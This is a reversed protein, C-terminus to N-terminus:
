AIKPIGNEIILYNKNVGLCDILIINSNLPKININDVPTHGVVCTVGHVMNQLLSKPRVWIPGQTIDDGFDSFNRGVRFCFAKPKYILTENILNIFDNDITFEDHGMVERCWNKTLGAHSFLYGDELHCVQMLRKNIAKEIVESIVLSSFSQHGSYQENVGRIYHFDHNGILIIVKEMNAEKFALIENFNNIQASATLDKDRSDFYDGIFIWKDVLENTVFEKWVQRGHIDGIVGITM